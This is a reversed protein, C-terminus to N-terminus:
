GVTPLEISVEGFNSYFALMEKGELSRLTFSVQGELLRVHFKEAGIGDLLYNRFEYRGLESDYYFEDANCSQILALFNYIMDSDTDEAEYVSKEWNGDDNRTYRYVTGDEAKEEYYESDMGLVSTTIYSINGDVNIELMYVMSGVVIELQVKYNGSTINNFAEDLADRAPDPQQQPYQPTYDPDEEPAPCGALGFVLAMMMIILIVTSIKKM